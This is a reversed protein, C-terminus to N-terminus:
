PESITIYDMTIEVPAIDFSSVGVGVQGEQHYLDTVTRIHEGNIFLTLEHGDCVAQYTNEGVGVKINESGGNYLQVFENNNAQYRYIWYLGSNAVNFEYWGRENYRCVLSVNNNNTGWNRVHTEVAVDAYSHPEYTVYLWVYTASLQWALQGDEAYLEFESEEGRELFWRWNPNLEDWEETYFPEGEGALTSSSASDLSLPENTPLKNEAAGCASLGVALLAAMLVLKQSLLRAGLM